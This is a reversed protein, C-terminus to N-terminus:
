YRFINPIKQKIMFETIQSIARLGEDVFGLANLEKEFQIIFVRRPQKHFIFLLFYLLVTPTAVLYGGSKDPPFFLNAIDL